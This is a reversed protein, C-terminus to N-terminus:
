RNIIFITFYAAKYRQTNAGTFAVMEDGGQKYLIITGKSNPMSSPLMRFPNPNQFASSPFRKKEQQTEPLSSSVFRSIEGNEYNVSLLVNTVEEHLLVTDDLPAALPALQRFPQM